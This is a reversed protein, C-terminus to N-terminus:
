RFVREYPAAGDIGNWGNSRRAGAGNPVAPACISDAEDLLDVIISVFRCFENKM